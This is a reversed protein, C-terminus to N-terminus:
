RIDLKKIILVLSFLIDLLTNGQGVNVNFSETTNNEIVVKAQYDTDDKNIKYTQQTNRV